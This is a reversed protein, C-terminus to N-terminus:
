KFCVIGEFTSAFAQFGNSQLWQKVDAVSKPMMRFKLGFLHLM